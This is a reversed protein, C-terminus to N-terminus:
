LLLLRRRCRRRDFFMRRFIVFQVVFLKRFNCRSEKESEAICKYNLLFFLQSVVGWHSRLIIFSLISNQVSLLFRVIIVIIIYACQRIIILTKEGWVRFPLLLCCWRCNRCCCCSSFSRTGFLPFSPFTYLFFLTCLRRDTAGFM